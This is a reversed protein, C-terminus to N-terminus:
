RKGGRTLAALKIETDHAENALEKEALQLIEGDRADSFLVYVLSYLHIDAALVKVSLTLSEQGM